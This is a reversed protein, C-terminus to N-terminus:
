CSMSCAVWHGLHRRTPRRGQGEGTGAVHLRSHGPDRGASNGRREAHALEFGACNDAGDGAFAKALGFDLVKVKGDPTLKINAPKLDRHIIEKEHAAELAEAIQMAIGLAEEVPVPGRASAIVCRRVRVLEMVLFTRTAPIRWVTSRRSTPIISRRWCAPRASSGRWGTPKAHLHKPFFSSRSRRGLKTDTAQYVEGMGGSGLHSTIQYHALKTGIM